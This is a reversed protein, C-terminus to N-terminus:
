DKIQDLLWNLERAISEEVPAQLSRPLVGWTYTEVEIHNTRIQKKHLNMVKVIDERTSDLEGYSEMFIPVHFHSRWEVHHSDNLESLAEPLDKYKILGGGEDKAIVQHLYIPEDFEKLKNKQNLRIIPDKSLKVKLASSVQFKGIKIHHEKLQEMCTQHHEYELAFHCIDYCLCIYRNIIARVQQLSFPYRERFYRLGMPILEQTYWKIFEQSDELMGDPEPEIDLHMYKSTAIEKQYLYDAIMLIHATCQERKM